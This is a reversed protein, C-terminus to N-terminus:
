RPGIVSEDVAVAALLRDLTLLASALVAATPPSAALYRLQALPAGVLLGLDLTDRLRLVPTGAGVAAARLEAVGARLDSGIRRWGGPTLLDILTARALMAASSFTERVAQDALIVDLGAADRAAEQAAQFEDEFFLREMSPGRRWRNAVTANWRAPCLEICVAGLQAEQAPTM